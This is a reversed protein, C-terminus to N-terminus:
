IKYKNKLKRLKMYRIYDKCEQYEKGYVKDWINFYGNLSKRERELYKITKIFHINKRYQKLPKIFFILIFAFFLLFWYSKPLDYMFDVKYKTKEDIWSIIFANICIFTSFVSLFICITKVIM